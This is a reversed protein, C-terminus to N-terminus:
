DERERENDEEKEETPPKWRFEDGKDMLPFVEDMVFRMESSSVGLSEFSKVVNEIFADQKEEPLDNTTHQCNLLLFAIAIFRDAMEDENPILGIARLVETLNGDMIGRKERQGRQM